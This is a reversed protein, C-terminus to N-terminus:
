VARLPERVVPQPRARRPQAAAAAPEVSAVFTPAAEEAPLQPGPAPLVPGPAPAAPQSSSGAMVPAAQDPALGPEPTRGMFLAFVAVSAALAAAGGGWRVWGRRPAGDTGTAALEPAQEHLARAVGAAFGPGAMRGLQGRMADGYLQWREYSGALEQDHELRRLLFRAEDPALAGDVLASLQQRYHLELRDVRPGDNRPSMDQSMNQKTRPYRKPGRPAASTRCRDSRPCPLHALPGHRDPLGDEARDGRLEPRGGRAPHHRGATGGAARRGGEDRHAGAGRAHGRARPYRYRAPPGGRRVARRRQRRHRRDPSAPQPRGPPE